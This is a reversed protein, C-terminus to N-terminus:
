EKIMNKLPERLLKVFILHPILVFKKIRSVSKFTTMLTKIKDPKPKPKPKTNIKERAKQLKKIDDILKQKKKLKSYEKRLKQQNDRKIKKLESISLNTLDTSM